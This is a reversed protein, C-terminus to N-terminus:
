QQEDLAECITQQLQRCLDPNRLPRHHRDTLFFVDEVREGLTAIKANQLYLGFKLFLRGLLALIGPRDRTILELITRQNKEDLSITVETPFNFYRLKRPTHRSVVESFSDPNDLKRTLVNKIQLIRQPHHGIPNGDAELVIYSDLSYGSNSTIIRADQISLNLQDLAAVTAAFLYEKDQAYVFIQTGGEFQRNVVERITVLPGTGHHRIISETHWAIDRAPDRLFYDDGLHSWLSYVDAIAIGKEHLLVLAERQVESIRSQKDIPNELGRRLARRTELYLRRLLSARWTNWLKPNTASIDAVTLCYLYNLHVEDQVLQAFEYIVDPDAIDKRQATTSMVLHHEVLWAVLNTEWTGLQHRRCFFEADVKGLASHDGGRGKAIDHFLGAIYLLEVKPLLAIVEVALPYKEKAEASLFDRMFNIVWLTHADVTYIHFLDYQMKGVIGGYETIYRGLIHYRKMRRLQTTLQYPSRLLDLFLATNHPDHRFADDILYRAERILRITSARVGQITPHNALLVFIELLASPQRNFVNVDTVELYHKRIQFRDNLPKIDDTEDAHLIVEDFHQLILENIEGINIVTRYYQQMFQEVALSKETDKYGFLEALQKQYDFLLRDENRKALMHLAYRVKWLFAQGLHLANFESESIFDQTVLDHLHTTNFHRQTVWAITQIDRLGGPTSKVNPELNYENNDFKKHRERQEASKAAFFDHSSWIQSADTMALMAQRLKDDGIITRSEMLSTAITIDNKAAQQCQSVTRVTHGVTLKIDWLLAIFQSITEQPASSKDELLILLDIDSHPHLEGRGFGGVAVLSIYTAIGWDFQQWALQLIQDILRARRHILTRIDNPNNIFLKDLKTQATELAYRFKAVHTASSSLSSVFATVDFIDDDIQADSSRPIM